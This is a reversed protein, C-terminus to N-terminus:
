SVLFAPVSRRNPVALDCHRRRVACLATPQFESVAGRESAAVRAAKGEIDSIGCSWEALACAVRRGSCFAFEHM